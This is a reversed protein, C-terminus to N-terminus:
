TQNRTGEPTPPYERNWELLTDLNGNVNVNFNWKIVMYLTARAVEGRAESGPDFVSSKELPLRAVKAIKLLPEM